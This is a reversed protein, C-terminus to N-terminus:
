LTITNGPHDKINMPSCDFYKAFSRYFASYDHFGSRECAETPPVGGLILRRAMLLRKKLIYNGLTSGTANKFLRNLYFKSLYFEKSLFDLSLNSTLEQDIFSIVKPIVSEGSGADGLTDSNKTIQILIQSLLGIFEMRELYPDRSCHDLMQFLPMLQSNTVFECDLVNHLGLKRDNFPTLLQGKPDITCLLTENFHIVKREYAPGETIIARHFEDPRVIFMNYPKLPYRNGEVVYSGAGDLFFFIEYESAHTHLRFDAQNIREDISHHYYYGSGSIECLANM